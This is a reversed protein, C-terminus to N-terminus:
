PERAPGCAPASWVGIDLERGPYVQVRGYTTRTEEPAAEGNGDLDCFMTLIYTGAPIQSLTFDGTDGLRGRQVPSTLSDTDAPFLEVWVATTDGEARPLEGRLSGPAAPDVLRIAADRSPRDPSLVVTEPEATVFEGAGRILRNGDRDIMALLWWRDGAAPLGDLVFGLASDAETIAVPPVVSPDPVTDGESPFLGVLIQGRFDGAQGEKENRVVKGQVSGPWIRDGTSFVWRTPRRLYNLRKDQILTTLLVAVTASEPFATASRITVEAGSTSIRPKALGGPTVWLAKELGAPDINESFVLTLAANRDM